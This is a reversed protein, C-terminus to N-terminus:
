FAVILVGATVAVQYLIQTLDKAHRFWAIRDLKEPVVVTDGPDLRMSMLNGKVRRSIATGDVKLIYVAKENANDTFGGAKKLYSSVRAKPNFVFANQNYVSGIVQVQVPMEPIILRDEDELAVDDPSGKLKDLTDLHINIRGQATVAGLKAILANRQKIAAEKMAVEAPDFATELTEVSQSLMQKELREISEELQRQQLERVAERTFIAGKLYADETFGGAREILSSLREGKKITYRGPFRVEGEINMTRHLEWEPITRVFLYDEEQLRLDHAPDGDLAKKLDIIFKETKPGDDTASIRTLESEGTYAYYKLGGAMSILDSIKMGSTFGYGGERHVPGSLNVIRKDPVVSFVRVLDGSRIEVDSTEVDALSAELVIQRNSDVIREIQVSGRYAIDNWGGAMELLEALTSEGKLEYIAPSRVNGAIGVLPGSPPIFVVDESMLRIDTRKDGKLLLDYLDFHTVTEGNRKVQIDRMTGAKSPGGAAFLANILSSMSSITYSGPSRAKGVIFVRMSKLRGMSLNINVEGPKYIRGLETKLFQRAESFTLLSLHLIGLQPLSIKGDRDISISYDVNVKGWLSIKLEDGPGLLYDPSVPVTDVPAFTEPPARFLSYGFQKIEVSDDLDDSDDSDDSRGLGEIYTEFVSPTEESREKYWMSGENSELRTPELTNSGEESVPLHKLIEDAEMSGGTDTSVSKSSQVSRIDMSRFGEAANLLGGWLVLFFTSFFLLRLTLKM